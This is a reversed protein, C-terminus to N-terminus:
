HGAHLHAREAQQAGLQILHLHDVPLAIGHQGVGVADTGAQGRRRPRSQKIAGAHHHGVVLQVPPRQQHGLLGLIDTEREVIEGSENRERIVVPGPDLAFQAAVAAVDWQHYFLEQGPLFHSPQLDVRGVQGADQDIDARGPQVREPRQQRMDHAVHCRRVIRIDRGIRHQRQGADADATGPHFFIVVGLQAAAGAGHLQFDVGDAAHDTLQIALLALLALIDGQGDIVFQLLLHEVAQAVLTGTRHHHVAAVALHQRHDAVRGEIWGQEIGADRLRL